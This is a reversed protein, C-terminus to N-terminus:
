NMDIMKVRHTGSDSKTDGVIVKTFSVRVLAVVIGNEIVMSDKIGGPLHQNTEPTHGSDNAMFLGDDLGDLSVLEVIVLINLDVLNKPIKKERFDGIVNSYVKLLTVYGGVSILDFIKDRAIIFHVVM